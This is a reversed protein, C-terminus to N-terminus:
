TMTIEGFTEEDPEFHGSEILSFPIHKKDFAYFQLKKLLNLLENKHIYLNDRTKCISEHYLLVM